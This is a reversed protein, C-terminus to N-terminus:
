KVSTLVYEGTLMSAAASFEGDLIANKLALSRQPSVRPAEFPAFEPPPARRVPGTAFNKLGKETEGRFISGIGWKIAQNQKEQQIWRSISLFARSFSRAFCRLSIAPPSTRRTPASVEASLVPALRTQHDRICRIM